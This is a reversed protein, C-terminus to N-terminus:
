DDNMTTRRTKAADRLNQVQQRLQDLERQVQEKIMALMEGPKM